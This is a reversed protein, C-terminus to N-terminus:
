PLRRVWADAFGAKKKLEVCAATASERDKFGVIVVKHYRGGEPFIESDLGANAKLRRQYALALEEREAGVFAAVQIGHTGRSKPKYDKTPPIAPTPTAPPKTNSETTTKAVSGAPDRGSDGDTKRALVTKDPTDVPKAPTTAPKQESPAPDPAPKEPSEPPKKKAIDKTAAAPAEAKKPAEPKKPSAPAPTARATEGRAAVTTNQARSAPPALETIRPGLRESRATYMDKSDPAPKPPTTSRIPTPPTRKPDKTASPPTSKKAVTKGPTPKAADNGKAETQQATEVRRASRYKEALVGLLFSTLCVFLAVCVGIVLRGQTFEATLAKPKQPSRRGKPRSMNGM